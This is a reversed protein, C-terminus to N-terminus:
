RAEAYIHPNLFFDTNTYDSNWGVRRNGCQCRHSSGDWGKCDECNDSGNFDIYTQTETLEKQKKLVAEEYALTNAGSIANDITFDINIIKGKSILYQVAKGQLEILKQQSNINLVRQKEDERAKLVKDKISDFFTLSPLSIRTKSLYRVVNSKEGWIFVANSIMKERAEKVQTTLDKNHEECEKNEKEWISLMEDTVSSLNNPVNINPYKRKYMIM